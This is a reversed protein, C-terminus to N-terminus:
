KSGKPKYVTFMGGGKTGLLGSGKPLSFATKEACNCGCFIYRGATKPDPEFVLPRLCDPCIVEEMNPPCPIRYSIIAM